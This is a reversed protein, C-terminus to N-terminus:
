SSIKEFCRHPVLAQSPKEVDARKDNIGAGSIRSSGHQVLRTGDLHMRFESSFRVAECFNPLIFDDGFITLLKTNGVHNYSWSINVAGPVFANAASNADIRKADKKM